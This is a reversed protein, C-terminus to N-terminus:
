AGKGASLFGIQALHPRALFLAALTKGDEIQGSEAMSLAQAAPIKEVNIFEDQDGPLPNEYLEQALYVHLYESSYGPAMYFGGIRQLNSAGMGIEERIERQASIKPTEGEEMTGAPLELLIQGGPHRYQRVFWITGSPDIPIMTVAQPHSVIDVWYLRGDPAQLQDRRIDFAQGQYVLESKVVEFAVNRGEQIIRIDLSLPATTYLPM